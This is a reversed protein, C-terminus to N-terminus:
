SSKYFDNFRMKYQTSIDIILLIPNFSSSAQKQMFFNDFVSGFFKFYEYLVSIIKKWHVLVNNSIINFDSLLREQM